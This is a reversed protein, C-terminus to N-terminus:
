VRSSNGKMFVRYLLLLVFAGLISGFISARAFDLGKGQILNLLLGGLFSGAIGLFITAVFGMPDRGPMLFRAVFGAIAGVIIFTLIAIVM